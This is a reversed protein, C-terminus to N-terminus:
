PGYIMDVLGLSPIGVYTMLLLVFVLSIGLYVNLKCAEWINVKAFSCSVMMVSAVPPPPQGVALNLTVSIAVHIPDVGVAKALRLLVSVM